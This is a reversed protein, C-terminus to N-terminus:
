TTTNGYDENLRDVSLGTEQDVTIFGKGKCTPCVRKDYGVTTFGNCNVCKFPIFRPKKIYEDM